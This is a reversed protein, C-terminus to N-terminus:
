MKKQFAIKGTVTVNFTLGARALGFGSRGPEDFIPGTQLDVFGHAKTARSQM